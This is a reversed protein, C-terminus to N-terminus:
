KQKFVPFLIWVFCGELEALYFLATFYPRYLVIISNLLHQGFIAKICMQSMLLFIKFEM